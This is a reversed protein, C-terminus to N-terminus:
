WGILTKTVDNQVVLALDHAYADDPLGPNLGRLAAM